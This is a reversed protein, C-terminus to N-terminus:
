RSQKELSQHERFNMCACHVGNSIHPLLQVYGYLLSCLYQLSLPSAGPVSRVTVTIKRVTNRAPCRGSDQSADSM